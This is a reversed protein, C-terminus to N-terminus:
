KVCVENKFEQLNRRFCYMISLMNKREGERELEYCCTTVVTLDFQETCRFSLFGTRQVGAAFEDHADGVHTM